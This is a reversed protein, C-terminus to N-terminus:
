PCRTTVVTPSTPAPGTRTIAVGLPDAGVVIPAGVVANSATDIELVSDGDLNTVYARTGDPTVAM